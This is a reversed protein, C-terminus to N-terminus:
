FAPRAQGWIVLLGTGHVSLKDGDIRAHTRWAKRRREIRGIDNDNAGLEQITNVYQTSM